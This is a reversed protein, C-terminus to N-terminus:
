FRKKLIKKMKEPQHTHWQSLFMPHAYASDHRPTALRPTTHFPTAHHIMALRPQTQTLGRQIKALGQWFGTRYQLENKKYHIISHKVKVSNIKLKM